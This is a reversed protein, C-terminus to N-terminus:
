DHIMFYFSMTSTGIHFICPVLFRLTDRLPVVMVVEVILVAFPWTFYICRRNEIVKETLGPVVM